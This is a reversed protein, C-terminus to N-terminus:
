IEMDVEVVLCDHARALPESLLQDLSIVAAAWQYGWTLDEKSFKSASLRSGGIEKVKDRLLVRFKFAAEIAAIGSNEDKLAVAELFIGESNVQVGWLRRDGHPEDFRLELGEDSHLAKKVSVFRCQVTFMKSGPHRAVFVGPTLAELAGVLRELNWHRAQDLLQANRESPVTGTALHEM